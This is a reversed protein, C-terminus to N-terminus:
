GPPEQERRAALAAFWRYRDDQKDGTANDARYFALYLDLRPGLRSLLDAVRAEATAWDGRRSGATWANGADDHLEILELVDADDLYREAFRRARIAHHNDGTRPRQRDVEIKFADHVIAVLRLKRRTEPELGARDLNALVQAVHIGVVGEPHGPRPEGWAVGARWRPDAMIREELATEPAVGEVM